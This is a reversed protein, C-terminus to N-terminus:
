SRHPGQPEAADALGVHKGVAGLDPPHDAPHGVEDDHLLVDMFTCSRAGAGPEVLRRRRTPRPIAPLPPLVAPRPVLPWFALLLMLGPNSPPWSDSTWRIGLSLPKLFGKRTSYTTTLRSVRAAKSPVSTVGSVRRALPRTWLCPRTLTSPRPSSLRARCTFAWAK